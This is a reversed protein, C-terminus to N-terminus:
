SVPHILPKRTIVHNPEFGMDQARLLLVFQNLLSRSSRCCIWLRKIKKIKMIYLLM